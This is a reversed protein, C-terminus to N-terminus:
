YIYCLNTQINISKEYVLLMCPITKGYFLSKCLCLSKWVFMVARPALCRNFDRQFFNYQFCPFQHWSCCLVISHSDISSFTLHISLSTIGMVWYHNVYYLLALYEVFGNCLFSGDIKTCNRENMQVFLETFGILLWYSLGLDQVAIRALWAM